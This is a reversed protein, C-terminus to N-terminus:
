RSPAIQGQRHCFVCNDNLIRAIHKTYTVESTASPQRDRGILCGSADTTPQSVPKGALLEDLALALDRRTPASRRYNANGVLGYQDDIRGRYRVTRQRDLVVIEPTRTAGAKDAVQQNLDKLIPFEIGHQRAYSAIETVADQRNSDLGVFAVGKPEYEKALEALRPAYLKALPCETGLFALVVIKDKAAKELDFTQGRYDQLSFSAVTKPLAQKQAPAAPAAAIATSPLALTALALWHWTSRM